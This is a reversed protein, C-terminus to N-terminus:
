RAVVWAVTVLVTSWLIIGLWTCLASRLEKTVVSEEGRNLPEPKRREGTFVYLIFQGTGYAIFGLIEVIVELM